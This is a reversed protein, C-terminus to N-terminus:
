LTKSLYSITLHLKLYVINSKRSVKRVNVIFLFNFCRKINSKTNLDIVLLLPHNKLIIQVSTKM